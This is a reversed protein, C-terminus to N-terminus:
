RMAKSRTARAQAGHAQTNCTERGQDTRRSMNGEQVEWRAGVVDRLADLGGASAGIVIVDIAAM